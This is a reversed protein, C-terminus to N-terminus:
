FDFVILRSTRMSDNVVPMHHLRGSVELICRFLCSCACHMLYEAFMGMNVDCSSSRNESDTIAM